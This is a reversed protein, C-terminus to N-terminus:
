LAPICVANVTVPVGSTPVTTGAAVVLQRGAGVSPAPHGPAAWGTSRGGGPTRSGQRAPAALTVACRIPVTPVPMATMNERQPTLSTGIPSANVGTSASRRM